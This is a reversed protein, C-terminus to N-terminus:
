PMDLIFCMYMRVIRLFLSLARVCVFLVRSRLLVWLSPTSGGGTANRRTEVAEGGEGRNEGGGRERTPAERRHVCLHIKLRVRYIVRSSYRASGPIRTSAYTARVHQQRAADISPFPSPSTLPRGLLLHADIQCEARRARGGRERGDHGM